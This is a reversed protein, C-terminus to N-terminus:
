TTTINLSICYDFVKFFEEPSHVFEYIGGAKRILKQQKEQNTSPTDRGVKVELHVSRGQIILATDSTGKKTTSTIWKDGIKRGITNIRNAHCGMWTAYNIILKTLGNSTGVDPFEPEMGEYFGDKWANPYEQKFYEKHADEYRKICWAPTEIKKKIKSGLSKLLKEAVHIQTIPLRIGARDAYVQLDIPNRHIKKHTWIATKIQQLTM